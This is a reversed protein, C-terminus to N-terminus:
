QRPLAQVLLDVAEPINRRMRGLAQIASARLELHKKESRAIGFLADIMRPDYSRLLHELAAHRIGSQQNTNHLIILLRDASANALQERAEDYPNKRSLYPNREIPSSPAPKDCSTV